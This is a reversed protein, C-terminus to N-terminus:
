IEREVSCFIEQIYITYNQSKSTSVTIKKIINFKYISKIIIRFVDM